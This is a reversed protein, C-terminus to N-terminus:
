QPNTRLWEPPMTEINYQNELSDVDDTDCPQRETKASMYVRRERRVGNSDKTTLNGPGAPQLTDEDLTQGRHCYFDFKGTLLAIPLPECGKGQGKFLVKTGSALTKAAAKTKEDLNRVMRDVPIKEPSPLKCFPLMAFLKRKWSPARVLEGKSNVVYARIQGVDLGKTDTSSSGSSGFLNSLCDISSVVDAIAQFVNAFDSM